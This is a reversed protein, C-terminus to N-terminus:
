DLPNYGMERLQKYIEEVIRPGFTPLTMLRKKPTKALDELSKIGHDILIRARVRGIYRLTALELADPKVGKELRQSLQLLKRNLEVEGVVGAVKGLAGSIWSATDRMNYLDGPAVNYKRLIEDESRENIWDYLALAHIFGALWDDYGYYKTSHPPLSGHDYYAEALEEFEELLRESVYSSSRTFDPTLAILHLMYLDDYKAPKLDFFMAVTLPDLYTYSTIRGLRTARIGGERTSEVMRLEELIKISSEVQAKFARESLLRSTFTHKFLDLVEEVQGAGQSAIASLTHIRLSRENMLHGEVPEPSGNIYRFGEKISSADIIIAEGVDDYKPRGARGAMQKYEAVSIKVRRGKVPDYRKISVLVRRAPLNVGAALTPTAFVASILRMRFAEEVVRRSTHSLGAHHFGVGRSILEKLLEREYRTPAEELIELIESLTSSRAPKLYSSLTQAYEEVKKRNHIFVLTQMNMKLNHLVLSVVYDEGEDVVKEERGDQFLITSKDHDYVAEVLKVPRWSSSILVAGLWEALERPNGVTASLGLVRVGRKISRAAIMEIIPGREPDGVNHLEDIVVLGVRSLWLPKLRQLSDFREYTAIVIDYRGLYEAPQDYDGTTIGVDIGLKELSRFEEYKESALARLPTLYVCIRGGLVEKVMAMEAILTKGSATPASIVMNVRSFLGKEIAERQITNLSSVGREVLLEVYGRPLGYDVLREVNM